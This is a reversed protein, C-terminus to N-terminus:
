LQAPGPRFYARGFLDLLCIYVVVVGCFSLLVAPADYYQIQVLAPAPLASSPFTVFLASYLNNAVHLGLALELSQSRLTIWGLLLGMGIYIPLTFWPGYALVEPNATHLLGFFLSPALWALWFGGALGFGQTLYGRFFIEEAACQFPLLLVAVALWPFFQEPNFHFVYNGPQMQSLIFDSVATVVLWLVASFFFRKWDLRRAPNVLTIVPRHHFMRMSFWLGGLVFLFPVLNLALFVPPPLALLDQSGALLAVLAMCLGGSIFVLGILITALLYRWFDNQGAQAAQVFRNNMM